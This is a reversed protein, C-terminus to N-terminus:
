LYLSMSIRMSNAFAWRCINREFVSYINLTKNGASWRKDGLRANSHSLPASASPVYGLKEADAIGSEEQYCFVAVPDYATDPAPTLWLRLSAIFGGILSHQSRICFVDNRLIPWRISHDQNKLYKRITENLARTSMILFRSMSSLLCQAAMKNRIPGDLANCRVSVLSCSSPAMRLAEERTYGPDVWQLTQTPTNWSYQQSKTLAHPLNWWLSSEDRWGEEWQQKTKPSHAPPGHPSTGSM